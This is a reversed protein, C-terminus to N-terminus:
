GATLVLAIVNSVVGSLTSTFARQAGIVDNNLRSVLAGTQTRTFFALPMRQVHDFLSSRLDFILGEGVRASCWREALSLGASAVAALVVLVAILNVLGRDRDPIAEDIVTRFLLPPVLALLAEAVITALFVALLRRYPRAHGWVRRVVKRDVSRGQIASPDRGLALHPGMRM